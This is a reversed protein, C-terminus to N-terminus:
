QLFCKVPKGAKVKVRRRNIEMWCGSCDHFGLNIMTSRIDSNEPTKVNRTFAQTRVIAKLTGSSIQARKGMECSEIVKGRQSRVEWEFM